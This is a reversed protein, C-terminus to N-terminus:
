KATKDPEYEKSLRYNTKVDFTLVEGNRNVTLRVTDDDGHLTALETILDDPRVVSKGEPGTHSTRVSTVRDGEKLGASGAAGNPEITKLIVHAGDDTLGITVNLARWRVENFKELDGVVKNVLNSPICFGYSGGEGQLMMESVCIVEGRDNFVPGGSNGQFINADVQDMYKPNPGKRRHKASVIGESVTWTLGWPHGIVIVKDGEHTENSDGLQLTVPKQDHAFTTWDKLKIVAIDAIKDTYVLEADYIKSSDSGVVSLKNNNGEIVHNNTVILNDGLIFGTGTGGSTVDIQNIILVTGNEVKKVVERTTMQQGCGVLLLAIAAISIYKM